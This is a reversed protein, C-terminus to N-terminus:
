KAASKQAEKKLRKKLKRPLRKKGKPALKGARPKPPQSTGGAKAAPTEVESPKPAEEPAKPAKKKAPAKETDM